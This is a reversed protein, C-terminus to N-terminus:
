EAMGITMHTDDTYRLPGGAGAIVDAELRAAMRHGERSAGLADGLAAGLLSGLFKKRLRESDVDNM